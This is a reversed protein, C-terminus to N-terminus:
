TKGAKSQARSRRKRTSKNKGRITVIVRRLKDTHSLLQEMQERNRESVLNELGFDNEPALSIEHPPFPESMCDGGFGPKTFGPPRMFPLLADPVSSTKRGHGTRSYLTEPTAANLCTLNSNAERSINDLNPDPLWCTARNWRNPVAAHASNM